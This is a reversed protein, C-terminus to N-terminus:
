GNLQAKIFKEIVPERSEQLHQYMALTVNEFEARADDDFLCLGHKVVEFRLVTSCTWLDVLDVDRGFEIALDQSWEWRTINDIPKACLVAIDIDSDPRENGSAFSGFVYLLRLGVSKTHLFEVIRDTDVSNM